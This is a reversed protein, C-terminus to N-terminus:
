TTIGLPMLRIKQPHELYIENVTNLLYKFHGNNNQNIYQFFKWQQEFSLIMENSNQKIQYFTIWKVKFPIGNKNTNEYKYAFQLTTYYFDIIKKSLAKYEILLQTLVKKNRNFVAEKVKIPIIDVDIINSSKSIVTFNIIDSSILIGNNYANVKYFGSNYPHLIISNGYKSYICNNPLGVFLNSTWKYNILNNSINNNPNNYIVSIELLNGDLITPESPTFYMFTNVNVTLYTVTLVNFIDTGQITYTIKETPTCIVYNNNNVNLYTSPFWQYKTSGYAFLTIPTNYDTTVTSNIVTVNVYITASVQYSNGLADIGNIIYMTTIIPNVIVIYDSGSQSIYFVTDNPSITLTSVDQLIIEAYEGYNISSNYNLNSYQNITTNQNNSLTSFIIVTGSILVDPPTNDEVTLIIENSVVNAGGSDRVDCTIIDNNNSYIVLLSYTSSTEGSINIGNNQWQYYYPYTGYSTTTTFIINTGPKIKNSPYVSIYTSLYQNITLKIQNSTTSLGSSDTLYCTIINNNNSLTTYLIYQSSTENIIDIGNNKWQYYYPSKGNIYSANFIINTGVTVNNSPNALIDCILIKVNISYQNINYGYYINNSIGGVLVQITYIGNKLTNLFTLIGNENNIEIESPITYLNNVTIISYNYTIYSNSIFLGSTSTGGTYLTQTNPNYIQNNFTSLLWSSTNPNYNIWMQIPPTYPPMYPLRKPVPNPPSSTATNDSITLNANSDYWINAQQIPNPTINSSGGVCIYYEVPTTLNIINSYSNYGYIGGGDTAISGITYCFIIRFIISTTKIANILTDQGFIGGAYNGINGITYCKYTLISIDNSTNGLNNGYIGGASQTINGTSYCYSATIKLNISSIGANSGYIGGGNNLINGTSYCNYANIYGNNGRVIKANYGLNSGIIGGSNNSILGNSYCNYISIVGTILNSQVTLYACFYKQCIWGGGDILTSNNKTIIGINKILINKYSPTSITSSSTGNQLLGLYNTINDIIVINNIGDFTIYDSSIIFYGNIDAITNNFIINSNFKVTLINTLLPNINTISIPYNVIETWDINNNSYELNSTSSLQQIYITGGNQSIYTNELIYKYNDIDKTFYIDKINVKTSVKSFLKEDEIRKLLNITNEKVITGSFLEKDKFLDKSLNM